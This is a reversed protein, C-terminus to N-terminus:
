RTFFVLTLEDAKSIRGLFDSIAKQDQAAYVGKFNFEASRTYSLVNDKVKFTLIYKGYDTNVVVDEPVDILKWGMPFEISSSEQLDSVGYWTNHMDIPFERNAENPFSGMNIDDIVPLVAVAVKGAFIIQDKANYKYYYSISDQLQDLGSISFTDIKVDRFYSSLTKHLSKLRDEHPMFRYLDRFSGSYVGSKITKVEKHFDGSDSVTIAVQRDILRDGPQDMPLTILDKEGPKIELAMAGQDSKPLTKFHNTNDTFDLYKKEDGIKYSLICHNFNPGKYANRTFKRINTNVLVLNAEIGAMELLTKGLSSMDKCDGLKTALVDKSAQPTWGSQRFSVSSYRINSTVYDHLRRVKEEESKIGTFLSDALQKLELTQYVKNNTLNQYWTVVEGWDEFNSYNVKNEQEWSTAMFSERSTGQSNKRSFEFVYFDEAEKKKFHINKGLKEYPITDNQPTILRLTNDYVPYHSSFDKDGYVRGAMNAQFFDKTTWDLYINDGPELSKFVVTNYSKDAIIESGGKKITVVKDIDLTQFQSHYPIKFKKWHDIADQTPLNVVYINRTEVSQSPYYYVNKISSLIKGFEAKEPNWNKGQEIVEEVNFDADIRNIVIKNQLKRLETWANYDSETFDIIKQLSEMAQEKKGQLKYVNAKLLLASYHNPHIALCTALSKLSNEYEKRLYYINGLAYHIEFQNPNYSLYEKYLEIAGDLSGKKVEIQALTMYMQYGNRNYKLFERIKSVAEDVKGQSLYFEAVIKLVSYDKGPYSEFYDFLKQIQEKNGLKAYSGFLTMKSILSEKFHEPSGEVYSIVKEYNASESIQNLEFYWGSFNNPDNKYLQRAIQEAKIFKQNRILSERYLGLLVNSKPFAELYKECMLQAHRHNEISLHYQTWEVIYPLYRAQNKKIKKKYYADIHATIPSANEKWSTASGKFGAKEPANTNFTIGKLANYSSDLFRINFNARKNEDAGLHGIKVLLKNAGKKLKVKQMYVDIGTNRFVSDQLVVEDNLFIKYIGSAGFSLVANQETDSEVNSYLYYMANYHANHNDLFVWGSHSKDVVDNWEVKNKNKGSYIKSFDIESEPAYKQAYGFNSTNEFPGIFKWTKISNLKEALAKQKDLQGLRAYHNLLIDQMQGQFMPNGEAARKVISELYTLDDESQVFDSGFLYTLGTMFRTVDRDAEFAKMNYRLGTDGHGFYYEVRALGRFAEARLTSKKSSTDKAFEKQAKFVKNSILYKWAKDTKAFSLSLTLLLSLVIWKIRM